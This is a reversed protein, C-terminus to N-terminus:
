SHGVMTTGKPLPRPLKVHGFYTVGSAFKVERIGDGIAFLMRMRQPGRRDKEPAPRFGGNAFIEASHLACLKPCVETPDEPAFDAPVLALMTPDWKVNADVPTITADILYFSADEDDWPEGDIGEAYEEDDEKADYPSPGEPVPMAMVSHVIVGADRLQAGLSLVTERVIKNFKWRIFLACGYLFAILGAIVLAGAWWPLNLLLQILNLLLRM